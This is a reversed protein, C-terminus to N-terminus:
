SYEFTYKMFCGNSYFFRVGDEAWSPMDPLVDKDDKTAAHFSMPASKTDHVPSLFQEFISASPDSRGRKNEKSASEREATPLNRETFLFM